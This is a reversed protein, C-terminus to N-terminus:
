ARHFVLEGAYEDFRVKGEHILERLAELITAEDAEVMPRDDVDDLVYFNRFYLGDSAEPHELAELIQTKVRSHSEKM